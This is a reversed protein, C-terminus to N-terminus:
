PKQAEPQITQFFFSELPSQLPNKKVANINKLENPTITAALNGKHMISIRDCIREVDTLIHSCFLITTGNQKYEQIIDLVLQRGLPDLGSMPEDLILIKPENILAFALAGRQTMGKSFRRIPMKISDQLNVRELIALIKNELEAKPLSHMRAAFKLHDYISLHKYLCPQEPLYGTKHHSKPNSPPLNNLLVQGNDQRVFGLLIKLATSKGAGNPGIIGLVEGNNVQFSVNQLAITKKKGVESTYTKKVQNFSAVKQIM